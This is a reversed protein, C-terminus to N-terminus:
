GVVGALKSPLSELDAKQIVILHGKISMDANVLRALPVRQPSTNMGYLLDTGFEVSVTAPAAM